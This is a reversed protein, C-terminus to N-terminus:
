GLVHRAHVAKARGLGGAGHILTRGSGFAVIRCGEVDVSVFEARALLSPNTRHRARLRDLDVGTPASLLVTDGGCLERATTTARGSLYALEGRGCAPCEPDRGSLSVRRAVGAWVDVRVLGSLEGPDAALVVKLAETVQVAAVMAATSPLLGRSECTLRAAGAGPHPWLCRLCPTRGPLVAMTSGETGACGAYVLATGDAVAVDNLLLKTDLNDACDLLVDADRALRRANVPAFDAVVAEVACGPDLERLRDAAAEAKFRRTRADQETYLSQTALNRAEVVDRDVLRVAGVGARVLQSAAASGLAGVGIIVARAAPLRTGDLSLRGALRAVLASREEADPM